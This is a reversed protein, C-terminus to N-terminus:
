NKVFFHLLIKFTVEWKRNYFIAIEGMNYVIGKLRDKKKKPQALAENCCTPDLKRDPIM